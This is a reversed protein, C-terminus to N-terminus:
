ISLRALGYSWMCKCHVTKEDIIKDFNNLSQFHAIRPDKLKQYTPPMTFLIFFPTVTFSFSFINSFKIKRTKM